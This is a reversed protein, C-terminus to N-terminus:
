LPIKGIIEHVIIEAADKSLKQYIRFINARLKNKEEEDRMLKDIKNYLKPANLGDENLVKAANANEFTAANKIQHNGAGYPYPILILPKSYAAIEFLANAGARSIVLDSCAIADALKQGELYSFFRYVGKLGGKLFPSSFLSKNQFWLKVEFINKEGVLHIVQYNKLLVPLIELVLNNIKKAGQSGGLFLIVPKGYELGFIRYGEKKDGYLIEERLPMGSFVIKNKWEKFYKISEPFTIFIKKAYKAFYLNAQGPISDSEHIFIPTKIKKAALLIPASVYGGKSLIAEPKFKRLIRRAQLFGVPIKLFDIFNRFSFYRRFKGCVIEKFKINYKRATKEEQSKREGAWLLELNEKTREKAFSPYQKKLKEVVAVIPMVHGGTGGGTLLIKM